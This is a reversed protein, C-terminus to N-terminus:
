NFCGSGGPRHQGPARHGSGIPFPGSETDIDGTIDSVGTEEPITVGAPNLPATADM